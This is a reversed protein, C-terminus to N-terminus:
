KRNRMTERFYSISFPVNDDIIPEVDRGDKFSRALNVRAFENEQDIKKDFEIAKWYSLHSKAEKNQNQYVAGLNNYASALTQFIKLHRFENLDVIRIKEADYEFVSILKLFEGKASEYKGNHYFANGLSLMLEPSKVFDDYLNLWEDLAKEYLKNLYYVRGLNYFLEPSEYGEAKAREYRERAINYNEIRELQQDAPEDDLDGYRMKVKDFFYYFVNGMVAYSKGVTETEKYFDDNTFEPQSASAKIARNLFKYADVPRNIDYYYEGMLHLAAFYDPSLSIAKDLYRKMVKLNNQALNLKAYQYQLPPYDPDRKNLASLVSKVAPYTNDDSDVLRPSRVGHDVRVNSTESKRKDLYYGALKALLASPIEPEMKKYRLEAHVASVQAFSDREIYLNLLGAYGIPSDKDVKLIDEYYKKAKLYQGQYFYANGIGVMSTVNKPDYLLGRRYFDIAVDLQKRENVRDKEEKHRYYWNEIDFKISGYFEKPVKSYYYGLNNLTEVNKPNLNFAENLKGISRSYEKKTFYARGYANYGPLYNKKYNEHVYKFLKEAEDYDAPKQVYDGAKLILAVGEKTKKKAMYPKYVLQYGAIILIFSVIASIGFIKAVKLLKKQRARGEKTYDARQTIVRRGTGKKEEVYAIRTNLKKELYGRISDEPKGSSIMDVLERTDKPSLLDNVIANKVAARISPNLLLLSKKLRKLENDTLELHEDDADQKSSSLPHDMDDLPEVTFSDIDMKRPSAKPVAAPEIDIDHFDPIKDQRSEKPSPKDGFEELADLSSRMTDDDFDDFPKKQEVPQQEPEPESISSLDIDPLDSDDAVPIPKSEQINIDALDPIESFSDSELSAKSPKEEFEPIEDLDEEVPKLAPKPTDVFSDPSIDQIDVSVPEDSIIDDIQELTSKKVDSKKQQVPKEETFDGIDPIDDFGADASVPQRAEEPVEHLLDTIDEIDDIQDASEQRIESFDVPEEQQEFSYESDSTDFSGSEEDEDGYASADQFFNMKAPYTYEALYSLVREIESLEEPRYEIKESDGM